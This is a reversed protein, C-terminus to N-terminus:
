LNKMQRKYVKCRKLISEVFIENRNITFIARYNYKSINLSWKRNLPGSLRHGFRTPEDTLNAYIIDLVEERLEKVINKNENKSVLVKFM